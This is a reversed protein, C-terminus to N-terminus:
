KNIIIYIIYTIFSIILSIIYGFLSCGFVVFFKINKKGICKGTWPCHHDQQIICIGCTHCHICDFSKPIIIHCKSCKQYNRKDEETEFKFTDSYYKRGAIGPNNLFIYLFSFIYLFYFLSTIIKM